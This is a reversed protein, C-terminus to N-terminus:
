GNEKKTKLTSFKWYRKEYFISIECYMITSQLWM